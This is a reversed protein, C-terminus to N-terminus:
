RGEIGTGCGIDLVEPGPMTDVIRAVLADPYPPRARDYRKADAGFGEAVQRARHPEPRSPPSGESPLTTM